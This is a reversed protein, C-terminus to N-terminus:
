SYLEKKVKIGKISYKSITHSKVGEGDTSLATIIESKKKSLMSKQSHGVNENIWDEIMKSASKLYLESNAIFITEHKLKEHQYSGDPNQNLMTAKDKAYNAVQEAIDPMNESLRTYHNALGNKSMFENLYNEADKEAQAKGVKIKADIRANFSKAIYAKVHRFYEAGGVEKYLERTNLTGQFKFINFRNVFQDEVGFEGVLSDVSEASFFCKAYVEVDFSLQNKPALSITSQLQKIESKVTKFEDVVIVMNRKFDTMSRAAPSGEFMKEVEKVSLELSMGLDKLTGMIFGKGWDSPCLFWLYAKKRDIAFRSAVIFELFDDLLNFHAKYDAVIDARPEVEVEFQNHNFIIKASEEKMVIRSDKAFMDVGMSIASRQSYVVFYDLLINKLNANLAKKNDQSFGGKGGDIGFIYGQNFVAGNVECLCKYALSREYVNLINNNTLSYFKSKTANWFTRKLIERIVNRDIDLCKIDVFDEFPTVTREMKNIISTVESELAAIEKDNM